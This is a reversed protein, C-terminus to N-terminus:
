RRLFAIAATIVGVWVVFGFLAGIEGSLVLRNKGDRATRLWGLRLGEANVAREV